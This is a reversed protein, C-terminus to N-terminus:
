VILKTTIIIIDSKENMVSYRLDNNNVKIIIFECQLAKLLTNFQERSIDFQIGELSESYEVDEIVRSGKVEDNLDIYICNDKCIITLREYLVNKVFPEYFSIVSKFKSTSVKIFEEQTYTDSFAEFSPISIGDAIPCLFYMMESLSIIYYKEGEKTYISIENDMSSLLISLVESPIILNDAFNSKYIGGFFMIKNTSSVINKNIVIASLNNEIKNEGIFNSSKKIIDIMDSDFSKKSWESLDYSISNYIDHTVPLKFLEKANYGYVEYDNTIHMDEYLKCLKLFLDCTINFSEITDEEERVFDFKLKGEYLDDSFYATGTSFDLYMLNEIGKSKKGNKLFMSITRENDVFNKSKIIM